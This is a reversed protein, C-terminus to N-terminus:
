PDCCHGADHDPVVPTRWPPAPIAGVQTGPSRSRRGTARRYVAWDPKLHRQGALSEAGAIAVDATRSRCSPQRHGTGQCLYRPTRAFSKRCHVLPELVFIAAGVEGQAMLSKGYALAIQADTADETYAREFWQASNAGSAEAMQAVKLFAAAAGKNDGVESSLEGLRLYNREQADIAVIRKLVMLSEPKRGQKALELLATEYTEVALKRNSNELLQGFRVKQDWTPNVFRALKKYTLSARTADGSEVQRDFLDGLLKVAEPTRQLSLSLDAAMSRVTDNDRDLQLVQLYIELADAPKGKQLLKEAREIHRAIDARDVRNAADSM